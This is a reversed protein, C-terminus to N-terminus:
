TVGAEPINALEPTGWSFKLNITGYYSIVFSLLPSPTSVAIIKLALKVPLCLFLGNFVVNELYYKDQPNEFYHIVNKMRPNKLLFDKLNRKQINAFHETLFNDGKNYRNMIDQINKVYLGRVNFSDEFLCISQVAIAFLSYKIIEFASRVEIKETTEDRHIRSRHIGSCTEFFEKSFFTKRFFDSDILWEIYRLEDETLRFENGRTSPREHSLKRIYEIFPAPSSKQPINRLGTYGQVPTVWKKESLKVRANILPTINAPHGNYVWKELENQSKPEFYGIYVLSEYSHSDLKKLIQNTDIAKM